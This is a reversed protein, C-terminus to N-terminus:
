LLFAGFASPVHFDPSETKSDVWSIWKIEPKDSGTNECYGRFLGIELRDGELVKLNRLTKLSIKGELEYGIETENVRIFLPEPWEWDRDFVRYFNAKYDLVRGHPDMELCYYPKMKENSRFFIEVRESYRVELKHNNKVYIYPDNITAMFKFNLHDNDVYVSFETTPIKENRWPFCFDSIKPITNWNRFTTIKPVSYEKM